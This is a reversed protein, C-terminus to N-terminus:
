SWGFHIEPPQGARSLELGLAAIVHAISACRTVRLIFREEQQKVELLPTQYFDSADGLSAEIYVIPVDPALRHERRIIEEKSALTRHGPRHPVLVPFELDKM